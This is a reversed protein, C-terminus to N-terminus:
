YRSRLLRHVRWWLRQLPRYDQGEQVHGVVAEEECRLEYKSSTKIDVQLPAPNLLSFSSSAYRRRQTHTHSYSQSWAPARLLARALNGGGGGGRLVCVDDLYWVNNCRLQEMDNARLDPSKIHASPPITSMWGPIGTLIGTADSSVRYFIVSKLFLEDFGYGWLDRGWGMTHERNVPMSFANPRRLARPHVRADHQFVVRHLSFGVMLDKWAFTFRGPRAVVLNGQIMPYQHCVASLCEVAKAQEPTKSLWENNYNRSVAKRWGPKWRLLANVAGNPAANSTASRQDVFASIAPWMRAWVSPWRRTTSKFGDVDLALVTDFRKDDFPLWRWLMGLSRMSKSEMVVVEIRKCIGLIIPTLWELDPSIHVIVGWDPLHPQVVELGKLFGQLYKKDFADADFNGQARRDQLLLPGYLDEAPLPVAAGSATTRPPLLPAAPVAARPLPQGPHERMWVVKGNADNDLKKIRAAQDAYPPASVIYLASSFVNRPPNADDWNHKRSRVRLAREMADVRATGRSRESKVLWELFGNPVASYIDSLDRKPGNYMGLHDAETLLESASAAAAGAAARAKRARAVRQANIRRYTPQLLADCDLVQAHKVVLASLAADADAKAADLAFFSQASTPMQWLGSAHQVAEIPRCPSMFGAHAVLPQCAPTATLCLPPPQRLSAVHGRGSGAYIYGVAKAPSSGDGLHWVQEPAGAICAQGAVHAKQGRGAAIRTLCLPQTPVAGPAPTLASRAQLTQKAHDFSWLACPWPATASTLEALPVGMAAAITADIPLRMGFPDVCRAAVVGDGAEYGSNILYLPTGSLLTPEVARSRLESAVQQLAWTGWGERKGRIAATDLRGYALNGKFGSRPISSRVTSTSLLATILM